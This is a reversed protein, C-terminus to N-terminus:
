TFYNSLGTSPNVTTLNLYPSVTPRNYLFDRTRARVSGGYISQARADLSSVVLVLGGM